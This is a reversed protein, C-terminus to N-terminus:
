SPSEPELRYPEVTVPQRTALSEKAAFIVRMGAVLEDFPIPSAGKGSVAELTAKIQAAQGKDQNMSKKKSRSGTKVIDLRRFDDLMAVAGGGFVELREKPAAKDGVTNYFLTGVSGNDFTVVISLNDTDAMDARNLSLSQAYVSTPRAGCIFQMLDVFHCMEGVLMGGGEEQEHLWSSTPIYGSNVRYIMQM